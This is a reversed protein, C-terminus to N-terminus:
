FEFRLGAGFQLPTSLDAVSSGISATLFSRMEGYIFTNELGYEEYAADHADSDIGDLRVQLGVAYFPAFASNGKASLGQRTENFLGTYLGFTAYPVIYPQDFLVDLYYTLGATIPVVQLQANNRSNQVNFVGATIQPGVSGLAFNLKSGVCVEISGNGQGYFQDFNQTSFSPRYNSPNFGAWQFGITWGLTERRIKYPVLTDFIIKTRKKMLRPLPKEIEVPETQEMLSDDSVQISEKDVGPTTELAPEFNDDIEQSIGKLSLTLIVSFCILFGIKKNM